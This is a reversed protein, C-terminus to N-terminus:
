AGPAALLKGNTAFSWQHYPCVFRKTHGCSGPACLEIGRHRCVNFFARVQHAEDRTVILSEIGVSHVFYDCPRSVQSVHGVYLWQRTIIRDIEKQFIEESVYYERPLSTHYPCLAPVAAM